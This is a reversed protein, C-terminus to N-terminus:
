KDGDNGNGEEKLSILKKVRQQLLKDLEDFREVWMQRYQKAWEEISHMAEPNLRYIRQQARREMTIVHSDLLLKLHRSIAPPSVQFHSCVETASLEGHVALLEIIRRRSPDAIATFKDM